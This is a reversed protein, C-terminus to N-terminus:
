SNPVIDGICGCQPGSFIAWQFEHGQYGQATCEAACQNARDESETKKKYAFYLLYVIIPVFIVFMVVTRIASGSNCKLM